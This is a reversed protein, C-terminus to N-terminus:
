HDDHDHRGVRAELTWFVHTIKKKGNGLDLEFVDPRGKGDFREGADFGPEFTLYEAAPFAARARYDRLADRMFDIGVPLAMVTVAVQFVIIGSWLRGFRM